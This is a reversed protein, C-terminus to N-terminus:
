GIGGKKFLKNNFFLEKGLTLDDNIIFYSHIKYSSLGAYIIRSKM